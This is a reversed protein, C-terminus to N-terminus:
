LFSHASNTSEGRLINVSSYEKIALSTFFNFKEEFFIKWSSFFFNSQSIQFLDHVGMRFIDVYILLRLQYDKLILHILENFSVDIRYSSLDMASLGELKRYLPQM